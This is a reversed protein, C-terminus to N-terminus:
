HAAPPHSFCANKCMKSVNRVGGLYLIKTGVGSPVAVGRVAGRIDLHTDLTADYIFINKLCKEIRILLKDKNKCIKQLKNDRM